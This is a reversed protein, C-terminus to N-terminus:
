AAGDPAPAPKSALKNRLVFVETAADEVLKLTQQFGAITQRLQEAADGLREMIDPANNDAM